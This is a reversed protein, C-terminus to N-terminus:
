QGDEVAIAEDPATLRSRLVRTSQRLQVPVLDGVDGDAMTVAAARVEVAGRRVVLTIAAGRATDFSAGDPSVMLEVPVPIRATVDSEAAYFSAIATTTFPGAHKPARPVDVDVRAWGDAVDVPHPARVASLTVGRGLPKAAIASRVLLEIDAPALHRAKRVIRVADPLSAPAALQKAGLAAVIEARTVLRSGGATPSPGIDVLAAAVDADPVVDGVHVRTGTVPVDRPAAAAASAAVAFIASVISAALRKM